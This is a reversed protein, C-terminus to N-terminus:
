QLHVEAVSWPKEGQAVVKLRVYRALVPTVMSIFTARRTGPAEARRVFNEGDLSTEAAIRICFGMEDPGHDITIMNLVCVEGLDITLAVDNYYPESVAATTDNGDLAKAPDKLPGSAKWRSRPTLAGAAFQRDVVYPSGCGVAGAAVLAVFVFRLLKTTKTRM